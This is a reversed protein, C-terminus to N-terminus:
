QQVFNESCSFYSNLPSLGNELDYRIMIFNILYSKITEVLIRCNTKLFNESIETYESNKTQLSM